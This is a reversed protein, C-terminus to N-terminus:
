RTAGRIVGVLDAKGSAPNVDLGLSTAHEKLTAMDLAELDGVDKGKPALAAALEADSAPQWAKGKPEATVFVKGPDYLVGGTYVEHPATYAKVPKKM